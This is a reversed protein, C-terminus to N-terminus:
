GTAQHFRGDPEPDVLLANLTPTGDEMDLFRRTSDNLARIEEHYDTILTSPFMAQHFM